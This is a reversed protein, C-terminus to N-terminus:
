EIEKKLNLVAIHVETMSIGKELYAYIKGLLEVIKSNDNSYTHNKAKFLEALRELMGGLELLGMKRSENANDSIQTYLDFSNIGCQIVDGLMDQVEKFLRAFFPYAQEKESFYMTKQLAKSVYIDDYVGIPYISCEGNEIYASGFIVYNIGPNNLMISGIRSIRDIMEKSESTYRAKLFLRNNDKM